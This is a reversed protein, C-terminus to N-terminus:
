WSRGVFEVASFPVRASKRLVIMDLVPDIGEFTVTLKKSRTHIKKVIAPFRVEGSPATVVIEVADYKEVPYETDNDYFLTM